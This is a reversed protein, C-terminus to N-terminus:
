PVGYEKGEEKFNIKKSQCNIDEGDFDRECYTIKWEGLSPFPYIGYYRPELWGLFHIEGSLGHRYLNVASLTNNRITVRVGPGDTPTPSFTLAVTYLITPTSTPTATETPLPTDTPNEPVPTDTPPLTPTPPDVAKVPLDIVNAPLECGALLGTFILVLGLLGITINKMNKGKQSGFVLIWNLTGRVERANLSEASFVSNKLILRLLEGVKGKFVPIWIGIDLKIYWASRKCEIM